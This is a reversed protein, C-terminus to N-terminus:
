ANICSSTFMFTYCTTKPFPLIEGQCLFFCPPVISHLKVFKHVKTGSFMHRIAIASNPMKVPSNYLLFVPCVYIKAILSTPSLDPPSLVLSCQIVYLTLIFLQTRMSHLQILNQFRDNYHSFLGM